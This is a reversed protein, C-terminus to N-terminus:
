LADRVRRYGERIEELLLRAAQGVEHIPEDAQRAVLKVRSEAEHFKHELQEWLDKADARALHVQVRLEDRVRRLTELEEDITGRLDSMTEGEKEVGAPEQEPEEPFLATRILDTETLLGAFRGGEKVVPLCGIRHELMLQAAAQLSAEPGITVPDRTMVESVDVSRMFTRRQQPDFDLTKSLSAALLDRSSVIGVVRDGDLVPMHRIRGLRMIDDALDLRDGPGLSVVERQMVQSVRTRQDSM